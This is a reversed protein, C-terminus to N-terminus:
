DAARVTLVPCRAGLLVRQATSGLVAKAVASTRKLGVVILEAGSQEAAGLLVEAPRAGSTEEITRIEHRVGLEELEADLADLVKEDAATPHTYGAAGVVNVVVVDTDRWTAEQAALRVALLGSNDPVYGVVVSM